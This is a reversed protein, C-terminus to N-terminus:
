RSLRLMNKFLIHRKEAMADILTFHNDPMNILLKVNFSNKKLMKYYNLTQMRWKYTEFRGCAMLIPLKLYPVLRSTNNKIAEEESLMIEKNISLDLVIETNYIGSILAAGKFLNKPLNYNKWDINIMQSVLHAGASHGSIVINKNNGYFKYSNRYIWIIGEVIQKRIDSLRVKPCLDYNLNFFTVGNDIFPKAMHSHFSKDLGRWYGGHIFIHIPQLKKIKSYYIDLNQLKGKGYYLTTRKLKNSIRISKKLSLALLLRYNKVSVRPNYSRENNYNDIM